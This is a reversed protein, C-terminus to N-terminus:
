NPMGPPSDNQMRLYALLAARDAPKKVGAFSMKTGKAFTKPSALFADLDAYNWDGGLDKLASSFKFGDVGAKARGVINWLNPGIKNKGGKAMTHCAVCKKAVKKGSDMSAAAMMAVASVAKPKDEAPAPAKTEVVEVAIVAKEPVSSHVVFNGVESILMVLLAAGLAAGLFKNVEFFDM